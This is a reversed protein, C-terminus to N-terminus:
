MEYPSGGQDETTRRVSPSLILDALAQPRLETNVGGVPDEVTVLDAETFFRNDDDNDGVGVEVTVLDAGAGWLLGEREGLGRGTFRSGPALWRPSPYM